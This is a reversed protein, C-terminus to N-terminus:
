WARAAESSSASCASSWGAALGGAAGPGPRPRRDSHSAVAWALNPTIGRGMRSSGSETGLSRRTCWTAM